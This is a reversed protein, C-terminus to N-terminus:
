SADDFTASGNSSWAWGTADGGTENLTVDDGPCIPGSNTATCSPATNVTVTTQCSSTCGNGDTVVVTFIEGNVSGSAVPSQASADDFTASGNSSWAWGTADGGTENLTVDDGPCIPGNNTATCSPPTNVTVTTQCSSTGAMADTITVTFIEGNVAGSAVPSQATDDDFTASGDSSWSWSVAEGGTENLTVDDGPCIPGNNSASCAPGMPITSSCDGTLTLPFVGGIGCGFDEETWAFDASCPPTPTDAANSWKLPTGSNNQNIEWRMLTGNWEIDFSGAGNDQYWPKGDRTGAQQIFTSPSVCLDGTTTIQASLQSSCLFAMALVITVIAKPLLKRLTPNKKTFSITEM